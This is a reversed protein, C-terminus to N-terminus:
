KTDTISIKNRGLKIKNQNEIQKLLRSIVVRSTNLDEAIDQHTLNLTTSNTYKVRDYLYKHLREDMNMFALTDITKLMEDFRAQYSQLIFEQWDKDTAFWLKMYKIPIMIVQADTDAVARIKSKSRSMCCTLSMACTDGEELLYLVIEHDDSDERLVKIHGKVLLPVYHLEQNIDIIISGKEFSRFFAVERITEILKPSFTSKFRELTEIAIM